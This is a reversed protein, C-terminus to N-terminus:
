EYLQRLVGCQHTAQGFMQASSKGQLRVVVNELKGRM